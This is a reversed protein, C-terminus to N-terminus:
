VALDARELPPTLRDDRDIRLLTDTGHVCRAPTPLMPAMSLPHGGHGSTGIGALLLPPQLENAEPLLGSEADARETVPVPEALRTEISPAAQQLLAAQDLRSQNAVERLGRRGEDLQRERGLGVSADRDLQHHASSVQQTHM